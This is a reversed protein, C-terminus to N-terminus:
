ENDDIESIMSSAPITMETRTSDVTLPRSPQLGSAIADEPVELARRPDNWKMYYLENNLGYEHSYEMGWRKLDFFRMGTFNLEFRRFYNLCNMYPVKEATIVYDPSMNKVFDWDDFCNYNTGPHNADFWREMAEQSLPKIGKYNAKTNPAFNQISTSYTVLDNFANELEGKMIYAEARTLLLEAYTFERRVTHAYGIGAVKDSYQFQESIWAPYYTGYGNGGLGSVFMSPNGTWNGWLYPNNHYFVARAVLSGQGYRYRCKRLITSYTDVLMINSYIYPSQWANAFDSLYTLGDLTAYDFMRTLLQENNTGLVANAHEVVKDWQRTYLYFRAAFAHAAEENFHWKPLKYNINSILRLGEELDAQIKKYTETVNSRDYNDDVHTIPETVYPVGIDHRSLEDNKYAQSFCNVLIFHDFARILLGEARAANYKRDAVFGPQAAIKDLAQLGENVSNISGYYGTWLAAPTDSSTSSKVPEFRFMEDDQRGSSTLNYHTPEQKAYSSAPLHVSNLDMVNDSSLECVWGYSADPYSTTFLEVVDDVTLVETRDDPEKDLFSDSCGSIALAGLALAWVKNYIFIKKM